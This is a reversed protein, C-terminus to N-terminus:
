ALNAHSPLGRFSASPLLCRKSGNTYAQGDQNEADATCCVIRARPGPQLALPFRCRSSIPRFYYLHGPTPAAGHTTPAQLDGASRSFFM